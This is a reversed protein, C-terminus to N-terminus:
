STVLANSDEDLSWFLLFPFSFISSIFLFSLSSKLSRSGNCGNGDCSCYTSFGGFGSRYWCKGLRDPEEHVGCKRVVRFLSGVPCGKGEVEYNPATQILKRCIHYDGLTKHSVNCPLYYKQPPEKDLCKIDDVSNCQYCYTYRKDEDGFEIGIASSFVSLLVVSALLYQVSFAM